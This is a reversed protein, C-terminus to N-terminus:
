SPEKLSSATRLMKLCFCTRLTRPCLCAREDDRKIVRILIAYFMVGRLTFVKERGRERGLLSECYWRMRWVAGATVISNYKMEVGNNQDVQRGVGIGEWDLSQLHYRLSQYNAKRFDPVLVTNQEVKKKANIKFRIKNHDSVDFRARIEVQSVLTENNTFVLDSYEGAKHTEKCTTQFAM